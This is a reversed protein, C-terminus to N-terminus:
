RLAAECGFARKYDDPTDIGTVVGADDIALEVRDAHAHVVARAGETPDATLLEPVLRAAFLGPHGRTGDYVPVVVPAATERYTALLAAVTTPKVLPHDVPWLLFADATKPLALIGCQVSSLMGAGPEPNVVLDSSPAHPTGPAVVVRVIDIGVDQLLRGIAALFTPGGPGMPLLAKPVGMRSSAGAALVVAAIM